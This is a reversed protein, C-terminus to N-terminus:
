GRGGGVGVDDGAAFSVAVRDASEVSLDGGDAAGLGRGEGGAVGFVEGVGADRGDIRPLLCGGLVVAWGADILSCATRHSRRPRQQYKVWDLPAPDIVVLWCPSIPPHLWERCGLRRNPRGRNAYHMVRVVRQLALEIAQATTERRRREHIDCWQAIEPDTASAQLTAQWVGALPPPTARPPRTM